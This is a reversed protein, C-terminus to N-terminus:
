VKFRSIEQVLLDINDRNKGSLENVRNVIGNIHDSGAVMENMDGAIEQTVGDLNKSEEVVVRSGNLMERSGEKVQQTIEKLQGIADLVEQSGQGQEEM